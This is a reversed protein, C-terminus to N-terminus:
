TVIKAGLFCRREKIIIAHMTRLRKTDGLCFFFSFDAAMLKKRCIM